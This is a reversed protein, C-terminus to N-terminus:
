DNTTALPLILYALVIARDSSWQPVLIEDQTYLLSISRLALSLYDYTLDELDHMRRTTLNERALHLNIWIETVSDTILSVLENYVNWLNYIKM